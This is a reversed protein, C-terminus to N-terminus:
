KKGKDKLLLHYQGILERVITLPAFLHWGHETGKKLLDETTLVHAKKKLSTINAKISAVSVGFFDAIDSYKERRYLMFLVEWERETFLTHPPDFTVHGFQNKHLFYRMPINQFDKVYFYTGIIKGKVYLPFKVHIFVRITSNIMVAGTAESFQGSELVVRDHEALKEAISALHPAEEYTAGTDLLYQRIEDSINFYRFYADNAYVM